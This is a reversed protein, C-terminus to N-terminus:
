TLLAAAGYAEALWDREHELPAKWGRSWGLWRVALHLRAAAVDGPDVDGYASLIEEYAAGSWGCALAGLDLVAPGAAALEWDVPVVRDRAVLVNSPYFEHHILARPLGLLRTSAQRYARALSRELRARKPWVDVYASDFSVLHPLTAFPVLREHM